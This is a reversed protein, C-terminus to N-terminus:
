IIGFSPERFLARPNLDKDTAKIERERERRTLKEVAV